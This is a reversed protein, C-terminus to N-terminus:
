LPEISLLASAICSTGGAKTLVARWYDDTAIPGALEVVQRTIGTAGTFTNIRTTASTFGSNDDSEITLTWTGGTVSFVHLVAVLKQTASLTGLQYGTGTTTAAMSAKPLLVTQRYIAAANATSTPNTKVSYPLLEGHAAGTGFEFQKGVLTYATNGSAGPTANPADPPAITLPWVSTDSKIRPYIIPDVGTAATYDMYGSLTASIQELGHEFTEAVDGLRSNPLEAKAVPVEINNLTGSLDYGGLWVRANKLLVADPM